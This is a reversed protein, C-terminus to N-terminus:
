MWGWPSLAEAAWVLVYQTWASEQEEPQLLRAVTKVNLMATWERITPLNEGGEEVPRALEDGSVKSCTLIRDDDAAPATGTLVFRRRLADMQRVFKAPPPLAQATLTWVSMAFTQFLM